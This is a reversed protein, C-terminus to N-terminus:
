KLRRAPQEIAREVPWGLQVIRNYLVGSSKFGCEVAWAEITQTRGRYTVLRSNRRNGQQEKRTAWRCNAKCYPGDNDIRDLTLGVPKLGMDRFFGRFDMWEACVTIGRGGYDKFSPHSPKLCRAKMAEWVHYTPTQHLGHKVRRM